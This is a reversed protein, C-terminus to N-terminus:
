LEKLMYLKMENLFCNRELRSLVAPVVIHASRLMVSEYKLSLM